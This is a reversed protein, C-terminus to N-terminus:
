VWRHAYVGMERLDAILDMCEPPLLKFGLIAYTNPDKAHCEMMIEDIYYPIVGERVLHQLLQWEGGEIDLKLVVFDDPRSNNKIYAALDVSPANWYTVGGRTPPPATTGGAEVTAEEGGGGKPGTGDDGDVVKAMRVGEIRVGRDHMWGAKQIYEVSKFLASAPGYDKKLDLLEFAVFDFTKAEPYHRGLWQPSGVFQRAGVDLMLRRHGEPLIPYQLDPRPRGAAAAEAILRKNQGERHLIQGLLPRIKVEPLHIRLKKRVNEIWFPSGFKSYPINPFDASRGFTRWLDVFGKALERGEHIHRHPDVAIKKTLRAPNVEVDLEGNLGEALAAYGLRFQFPIIVRGAHYSINVNQSVYIPASPDFPPTFPYENPDRTASASSGEGAIAGAVTTPSVIGISTPFMAASQSVGLPQLSEKRGEVISAEEDVGSSVGGTRQRHAAVSEESIAGGGGTACVMMGIAVGLAFLIFGMAVSRTNFLM